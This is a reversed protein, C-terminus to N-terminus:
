AYHLYSAIPCCFSSHLLNTCNHFNHSSDQIKIERSTGCDVCKIFVTKGFLAKQRCIERLEASQDLFVMALKASITGLTSIFEEGHNKQNEHALAHALIKLNIPDLPEVINVVSIDCILKYKTYEVKEEQVSETKFVVRVPHGTIQEALWSMVKSFRRQQADM